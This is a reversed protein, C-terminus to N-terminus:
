ARDDPILDHDEHGGDEPDHEGSGILQRARAEARYNELARKTQVVWAPVLGRAEPEHELLYLWAFALMQGNTVKVRTGDPAPYDSEESARTLISAKVAGPLRMPAFSSTLSAIAELLDADSLKAVDPAGDTAGPGTGDQTTMGYGGEPEEDGGRM